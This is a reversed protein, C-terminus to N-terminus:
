DDWLSSPQTGEKPEEFILDPKALQQSPDKVDEHLQKDIGSAAMLSTSDDIVYVVIRPKIYTKM